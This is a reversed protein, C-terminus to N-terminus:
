RTKYRKLANEAMEVTIVKKSVFVVLSIVLKM